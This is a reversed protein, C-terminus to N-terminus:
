LWLPEKAELPTTEENILAEDRRAILEKMFSLIQLAAEHPLISTNNISLGEHKRFVFLKGGESRVTRAENPSRVLHCVILLLFKLKCTRNCWLWSQPHHQATDLSQPCWPSDSVGPYPQRSGRVANYHLSLVSM